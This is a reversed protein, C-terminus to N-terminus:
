SFNIEFKIQPYDKNLKELWESKLQPTIDSKKMYIHLEAKKNLFELFEKETDFDRHHQAICQFICGILLILLIKKM